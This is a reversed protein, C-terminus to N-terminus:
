SKQDGGDETVVRLHPGKPPEPPTYAGHRLAEELAKVAVSNRFQPEMMSIVDLLRQSHHPDSRSFAKGLLAVAVANAALQAKLSTIEADFHHVIEELSRLTVMLVGLITQKDSSRGHFQQSPRTELSIISQKQTHLQNWVRRYSERSFQRAAGCPPRMGGAKCVACISGCVGASTIAIGM